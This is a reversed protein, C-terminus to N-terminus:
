DHGTAAPSSLSRVGSNAPLRTSRLYSRFREPMEARFRIRTGTSPSDLELLFAHLMLTQGDEKGYIPDGIIPHGAKSLHVRIQHTRGTHLVIRLLAFGSYQRLVQYETKAYRGETDDCTTFKKRDKPDRKLHKEITGQKTKFTGRALAIYVKKTTHNKFQASLQRHSIRNRAVVLVGSTDKDLRHVIGPRVAPSSLDAEEEVETEDMLEECFREGYRHVLANVLTHETNGNAPHVVMGQEKNIVLLDEDEYLITLPIAEGEIGAFFNESYLVTIHDGERVLKSKKSAKGNLQIVTETESLTSRSILDTHGAVYVDLRVPHEMPEVVLDVRGEKVGM